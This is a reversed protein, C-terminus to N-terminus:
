QQDQETKIQKQLKIEIKRKLTKISSTSTNLFFAIEEISYNQSNLIFVMKEFDTLNHLDEKIDIKSTLDRNNAIQSIGNRYSNTANEIIRSFSDFSDPSIKRIRSAELYLDNLLKPLIHGNNKLINSTIIENQLSIIEDNASKLLKKTKNKQIIIGTPFLITITFILYLLLRKQARLSDLEIEHKKLDFRKEIEEAKERSIFLSSRSQYRLAKASYEASLKYEGMQYYLNSLNRFYFHINDSPNNTQEAAEASKIAYFLTSDPNNFLKHIYSIQYYLRPQNKISDDEINLNKLLYGLAIEYDKKIYYYSYMCSNFRYALFPPIEINNAFPAIAKIANEYDRSSLYLNFLEIYGSLELILAKNEKAISISKLFLDKAIEIQNKRYNIQGKILYIQSLLAPDKYRNQNYKELAENLILYSNPDNKNINYLHASLYVQARIQNYEDNNNLFWKISNVLKNHDSIKGTLNYNVINNLLDIQIRYETSLTSDSINSLLDKSKQPQTYLYLNVSDLRNQIDTKSGSNTINCSSILLMIIMSICITKKTM